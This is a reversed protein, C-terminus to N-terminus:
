QKVEEQRSFVVTFYLKDKFIYQNKKKHDPFTQLFTNMKNKVFPPCTSFYVCCM